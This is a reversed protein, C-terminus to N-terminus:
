KTEHSECTYDANVKEGTLTCTGHTMNKCNSCNNMVVGGNMEEINSNNYVLKLMKYVFFLFGIELVERKM